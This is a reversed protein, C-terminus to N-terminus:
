PHPLKQWLNQAKLDRELEERQRALFEVKRCKECFQVIAENPSNGCSSPYWKNSYPFYEPDNPEIDWKDRPVKEVQLIEGHVECRTKSPEVLNQPEQPAFGSTENQNSATYLHTAIMCCAIFFFGSLFGGVIKAVEKLTDEM